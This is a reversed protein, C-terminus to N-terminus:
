NITVEGPVVWPPVLIQTGAPLRQHHKGRHKLTRTTIFDGVKKNQAVAGRPGARHFLPAGAVNINLGAVWSGACGDMAGKQLSDQIDPAAADYYIGHYYNWLYIPKGRTSKQTTGYRIFVAADGPTPHATAGPVFVGALGGEGAPPVDLEWVLTPPEGPAHGYAHEIKVDAPLFTSELYWAIGYLGNWQADSSPTPTVHYANSWHERQARYTFSKELTLFATDSKSTAV